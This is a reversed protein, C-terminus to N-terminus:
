SEAEEAERRRLERANPSYGRRWNEEITVPELHSPRVCSPNRCLHDIVLGVPIRGVRSEYAYRHAPISRGEFHFVGYGRGDRRGQWEWCRNRCKKVRDWFRVENRAEYANDPSMGLQVAALAVAERISLGEESNNRLETARRELENAIKEQIPSMGRSTKREEHWTGSM